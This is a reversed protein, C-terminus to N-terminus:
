RKAIKSKEVEEILSSKIKELRHRGSKSHYLEIKSEEDRSFSLRLLDEDRRSGSHM